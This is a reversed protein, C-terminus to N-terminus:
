YELREPYIFNYVESLVQAGIIEGDIPDNCDTCTFDDYVVRVSHGAMSYDDAIFREVHAKLADRDCEETHDLTITIM